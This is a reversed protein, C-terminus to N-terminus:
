PSGAPPRPTASRDPRASAFAPGPPPRGGSAEGGRRRPAGRPSRTASTNCPRRARGPPELVRRPRAGHPPDTPADPPPSPLDAMGRWTRWGNASVWDADTPAWDGGDSTGPTLDALGGCVR